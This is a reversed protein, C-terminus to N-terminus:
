NREAYIVPISKGDKQKTLMYTRDIVASTIFYPAAFIPIFNNEKCFQLIQNTNNPDITLVEDICIPIKNEKHSIALKHIISLIIVLRIVKDAGTSEIQKSFDIEKAIGNITVEAKIEFLEKFEVKRSQELYIKLIVLNDSLQEAFLNDKTFHQLKSILELEKILTEAEKVKIVIKEINSIKIKSLQQNFNNIFVKFHGLKDLLQFTPNSFSQAISQLLDDIVKNKSEITAIEDQIVEIFDQESAENRFTKNKLENFLRDKQPKLSKLDGNLDIIEKYIEDISMSPQYEKSSINERKLHENWDSIKSQRQEFDSIKKQFLQIQNSLKMEENEIKESQIKLNKIEEELDSISKKIEIIKKELAPKQETQQIQTKVAEVKSNIRILKTQNAEFDEVVKLIGEKEKLQNEYEKLGEKLAAVSVFKEFKFDKPLEVKGDYIELFQKNAKSIPQKIKEKTLELIRESLTANLLSQIEDKDSIHHILLKDYNEIQMKLSSIKRKLESIGQKLSEQTYNYREIQDINSSLGRAEKELNEKSQRLMELSLYNNIAKLLKQNEELEKKKNALSTNKGGINQQIQNAKPKIENKMKTTIEQIKRETEAVSKEIEIIEKNFKSNFAYYLKSIRETKLDCEKVKEVFLEFDPQIEEINRLKRIEDQLRYLDQKNGQAFNVEEGERNDAIILADKLTNNTILKPNILYSYIKSFNNSLGSTKVTDQLWVVAHGRKGREYVINFLDQKHKLPQPTIGLTAFNTFLEQFTFLKQQGNSQIYYHEDRFESDIKYFELNKQVDRKMLVCYYGNKMVEFIMYSHNITPFYHHISQQFDHEGGFQMKNGDIIFLLNLSNILSTKGITNSGVLQISDRDLSIIAKSCLSSNLQIIKTLM